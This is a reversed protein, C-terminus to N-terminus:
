NEKANVAARARTLIDKQRRHFAVTAADVRTSYLAMATDARRRHIFFAISGSALGAVVGVIVNLLAWTLGGIVLSLSIIFSWPLGEVPRRDAIIRGREDLVVTKMLTDWEEELQKLQMLRQESGTRSLVLKIEKRTEGAKMVAEEHATGLVWGFEQRKRVESQRREPPVGLVLNETREM